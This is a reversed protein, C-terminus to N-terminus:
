KVDSLGKLRKLITVNDPKKVVVVHQFGLQHAQKEIRESVVLLPQRLCRGRLLEFEPQQLLNWLIQLIQLSTVTLIVRQKQQLFLAIAAKEDATYTVTERRYVDIVDLQAGRSLLSEALLTRGEEGKVLLWKEGQINSSQLRELALLGETSAHEDPYGVDVGLQSLVDASGQGVALWDIGVPIQPWLQHVGEVLWHAAPRSICVVGAYQDINLVSSRQIATDVEGIELAYPVISILPLSVASWGLDRIHQILVHNNPEPRTVVVCLGGGDAGGSFLGTM